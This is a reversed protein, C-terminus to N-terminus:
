HSAHSGHDSVQADFWRHVADIVTADESSYTLAAGDGLEHYAISLRSATQRLRALGPMDDGHITIPDTFDGRAFRVAEDQLHSRILAIQEADSPDDATVTQVGGDDTKTFVHTTRDLDFPMVQAGREAVFEQRSKDGALMKAAAYAGTGAAAIAVIGAIALLLRAPTPIPAHSAAPIM